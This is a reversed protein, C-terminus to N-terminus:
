FPSNPDTSRLYYGKKYGVEVGAGRAAQGQEAELSQIRRDQAEIRRMLDHVTPEQAHAETALGGLALGSAAAVLARAPLSHRSRTTPKM